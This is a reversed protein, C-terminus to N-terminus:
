WTEWSTPWNRTTCTMSDADSFDSDNIGLSWPAGLLASHMWDLILLLRDIKELDIFNGLSKSM